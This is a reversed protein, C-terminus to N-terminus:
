DNETPARDMHDIILMEVPAGKPKWDCDSRSRSLKESLLLATSIPIPAMPLGRSGSKANTQWDPRMGFWAISSAVLSLFDAFKEM